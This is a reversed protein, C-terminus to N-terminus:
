GPVPQVLRCPCTSIRGLGNTFGRRPKPPARARTGLTRQAVRPETTFRRRRKDMLVLTSLTQDYFIFVGESRAIMPRRNRHLCGGVMDTAERALKQWGARPTMSLGM